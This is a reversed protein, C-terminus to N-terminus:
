WSGSRKPVPGIPEESTTSKKSTPKKVLRVPQDQDKELEDIEEKILDATSIAPSKKQKTKPPKSVPDGYDMYRDTSRGYKELPRRTHGKKKNPKSPIGPFYRSERRDTLAPRLVELEQEDWVYTQGDSTRIKWGNSPASSFVKGTIRRTVHRVTAGVELYQNVQMGTLTDAGVLVCLELKALVERYVNRLLLGGDDVTDDVRYLQDKYFVIEGIAIDQQEVTEVTCGCALTSHTTAGMSREAVVLQDGHEKCKKKFLEGM